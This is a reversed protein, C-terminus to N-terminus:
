VGSRLGDERLRGPDPDRHPRRETWLLNGDASQRGHRTRDSRRDQRAAAAYAPAGACGPSKGADGDYRGPAATRAAHNRPDTIEEWNKFAARQDDGWFKSRGNLAAFDTLTETFGLAKWDAARRSLYQPIHFRFSMALEQNQITAIDLNGPPDIRGEAMEVMYDVSTMTGTGFVKGPMFETPRIAAAFDKFVPTGDTGLRFL